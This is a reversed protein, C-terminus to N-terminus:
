LVSILTSVGFGRQTFEGERLEKDEVWVRKPMHKLLTAAMESGEPTLGCTFGNTDHMAIVPVNRALCYALDALAAVGHDGDIFAFDPHITSGWIPTTHLTIRNPFASLVRRLEPTPFPEYVHLEMEPLIHMAEIFAVTSHGQYSGIEVAVKPQAATIASLLAMVHRYDMAMPPNGTHTPLQYKKWLEYM